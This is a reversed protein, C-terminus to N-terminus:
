ILPHVNVIVEIVHMGQVHFAFCFQQYAMRLEILPPAFLYVHADSWALVSISKGAKWAGLRRYVMRM